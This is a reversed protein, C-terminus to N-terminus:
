SSEEQRWRGREELEYVTAFIILTNITLLGTVAERVGSQLSMVTTYM